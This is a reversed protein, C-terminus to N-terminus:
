TRRVRRPHDGAGRGEGGANTCLACSLSGGQLVRHREHRNGRRTRSPVRGGDRRKVYTADVWIYSFAAGSLDREQMDVVTDDLSGCIRSVRSASMRGVGLAGAVCGVERTSVGCTVMEFVVAIVAQDVQSCRVLLDEPFYSGGRLKPIPSSIASVDTVLARERHGNRRSGGACADEVQADM